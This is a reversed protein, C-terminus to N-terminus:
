TWGLDTFEPFVTGDVLYWYLGWGTLYPLGISGVALALLSGMSREWWLGAVVASALFALGLWAVGGEIYSHVLTVALVVAVTWGGVGLGDHHARMAWAFAVLVLFLGISSVYHSVVEDWLHVIPAESVAEDEVNSISNAALHLGHGL